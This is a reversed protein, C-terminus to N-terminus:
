GGTPDKLDVIGVVQRRSGPQRAGAVSLEDDNPISLGAACLTGNVAQTEAHLPPRLGVWNQIGRAVAFFHEGPVVLLQLDGANNANAAM